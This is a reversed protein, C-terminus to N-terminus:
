LLRPLTLAVQSFFWGNKFNGNTHEEVSIQFEPFEQSLFVFIEEVNHFILQPFNQLIFEVDNLQIKARDRKEIAKDISNRSKYKIKNAVVRAAAAYEEECYLKNKKTINILDPHHYNVLFVGTKRLLTHVKRFIERPMFDIAMCSFIIDFSGPPFDITCADAVIHPWDTFLQDKELLAIDVTILNIREKCKQFRPSQELEKEFIQKGSGLDLISVTEQTYLLHEIWDLLKEQLHARTEVHSDSDHHRYYQTYSSQFQDPSYTM